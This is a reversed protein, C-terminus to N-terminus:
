ACRDKRILLPKTIFCFGLNVEFNQFLILPINLEMVLKWCVCVRWYSFWANEFPSCSEQQRRILLDDEKFDKLALLKSPQLNSYPPLSHSNFSVTTWFLFYTLLLLDFSFLLEITCTSWCLIYILTFTLKFRHPQWFTSYFTM